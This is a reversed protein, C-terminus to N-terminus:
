MREAYEGTRIDVKIRDGAKIFVPVSVEAGTEVRCQKMVNTATDGKVGPEAWTVELDVKAPLEVNVPRDNAYLLKVEMGEKMLGLHESLMDRPIGLQDYTDLRMFYAQDTDSYLFQVEVPDIRSTEIKDSSRFTKSLISGDYLSRLKTRVVASGRAMSSHDSKVVRYPVDEIQIITGKKLDSIRLM